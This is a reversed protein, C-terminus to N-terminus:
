EYVQTTVVYGSWYPNSKASAQCYREASDKSKFLPGSYYEKSYEGLVMVQYLTDKATLKLNTDQM